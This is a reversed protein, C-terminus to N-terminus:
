ATLNAYPPLGFFGVIRRIRGDGAFEVFDVGERVVAGGADRVCWAFSAHGHHVVVQGVIEIRAGPLRDAFARCGAALAAPGVYGTAPDQYTADPVWCAEALARRADPDPTNWVEVYTAVVDQGNTM